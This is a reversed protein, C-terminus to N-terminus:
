ECIIKDNIPGDMSIGTTEMIIKKGSKLVVTKFKAFPEGDLLVTNNITLNINSCIAQQNLQISMGTSPDEESTSVIRGDAIYSETVRENTQADISTVSFTTVGNRVTQWVQLDFSTTENNASSKCELYKGSLNPCSLASTAAFIYIFALSRM